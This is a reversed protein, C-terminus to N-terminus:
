DTEKNQHLLEQTEIWLKALQSDGANKNKAPLSEIDIPGRKYGHVFCCADFQYENDGDDNQYYCTCDGHNM